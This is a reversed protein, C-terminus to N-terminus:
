VLPHHTDCGSERSTRSARPAEVSFPLLKRRRRYAASEEEKAAGANGWFGPVGRGPRAGHSGVTRGAFARERGRKGHEALM